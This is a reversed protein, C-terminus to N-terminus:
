TQCGSSVASWTMICDELDLRSIPVLM